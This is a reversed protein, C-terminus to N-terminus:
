VDNKILSYLQFAAEVSQKGPPLEIGEARLAELGIWRHNAHEISLKMQDSLLRAIYFAVLIPHGSEHRDWKLFCFPHIVEIELETEERVERHLGELPTEEDELTGGPMDWDYKKKRINERLLLIEGGGNFIFAFAAGMYLCRAIQEQQAM